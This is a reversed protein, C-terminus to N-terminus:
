QRANDIQESRTMIDHFAAIRQRWIEERVRSDPEHTAVEDLFAFARPYEGLNAMLSLGYFAVDLNPKVRFSEIFYEVAEEDRDLRGHIFAKALLLHGRASNNRAYLPNALLADILELIVPYTRPPCLLSPDDDQAMLIFEYAATPTLRPSTRLRDSVRELVEPYADERGLCIRTSQIQLLVSDPHRQAAEELVRRAEDFRLADLHQNALFQAARISNPHQQHWITATVAGGNWASTTQFLVLAFLAAYTGLAAATLKLWKPPAGLTVFALAFYLGFAPVYNRHAFYLELGIHTSEILHGALFFALGLAFVPVTKRWLLAVVVMAGWFLAAVLTLPPALWGRSAPWQDMFPNTASAQPLLLWRLYDLLILPQTMLREAPTFDRRGGYHGRQLTEVLGNGLYALLLLAPLLALLVLLVREISGRLWRERPIWLVLIVMALLPLLAGNEKSLTALLTMAGLGVVLLARVWTKRQAPLLHAWVFAALGLLVFLGALGTMRQIVMLHTTALVPSLGWLLATAAGIWAAQVPQKPMRLLAMGTAFLFCTGVATLHILINVRLMAAPDSDWAEAQAVFTALSVPRGLPGTMGSFIYNLATLRDRVESLGALSPRDDYLWYGPLSLWYLRGILILGIGVFLLLIFWKLRSSWFFM